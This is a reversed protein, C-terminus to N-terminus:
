VVDGFFGVPFQAVVDGEHCRQARAVPVRDQKISLAARSEVISAARREVLLAELEPRLTLAFLVRGRLVAHLPAMVATLTASRRLRWSVTDGTRPWPLRGMRRAVSSSSSVASTTSSSAVSGSRFANATSPWSSSQSITLRIRWHGSSFPTTCTTSSLSAFHGSSTERWGTESFFSRTWVPSVAYTLLVHFEWLRRSPKSDVECGSEAVSFACTWTCSRDPCPVSTGACCPSTSAGVM